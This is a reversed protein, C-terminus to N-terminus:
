EGKLRKILDDIDINHKYRISKDNRRLRNWISSTEDQVSILGEATFLAYIQSEPVKLEKALATVLAQLEPPMDINKQHKDKKPM